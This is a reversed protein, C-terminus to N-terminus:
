EARKYFCNYKVRHDLKYGHSILFKCLSSEGNNYNHDEIFILTPKWKDIDFGNLVLLESGEVDITLIDIKTVEPMFESLLTDLKRTKVKINNLQQIVKHGGFHNVVKYDVELSSFGATWGSSTVVTFPVDDEDKDSCAYNLAHQRSKFEGFELHNAEICYANWRNKEFHYSNSLIIPHYAGVEIITGKYTYNPFYSRLVEDAPPTEDVIEGHFLNYPTDNIDDYNLTPM